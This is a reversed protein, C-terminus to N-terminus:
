CTILVHRGFLPHREEHSGVEVQWLGETDNSNRWVMAEFTNFSCAWKWWLCARLAEGTLGRRSALDLAENAKAMQRLSALM